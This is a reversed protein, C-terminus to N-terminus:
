RTAASRRDCRPEAGGRGYQRHRSAAARRLSLWAPPPERAYEPLTPRTSPGRSRPAAASRQEARSSAELKLDGVHTEGSLFVRTTEGKELRSVSRMLLSRSGIM